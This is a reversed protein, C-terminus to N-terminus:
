RNILLVSVLQCSASAGGITGEKICRCLRCGRSNLMYGPECDDCARGLVRRKCPCQGTEKSCSPTSKTGIPHCDCALSPNNRM